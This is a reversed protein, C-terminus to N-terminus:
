ILTVAQLPSGSLFWAYFSPHLQSMDPTVMVPNIHNLLPMDKKTKNNKKKRKQSLRYCFHIGRINRPSLAASRGARKASLRVAM